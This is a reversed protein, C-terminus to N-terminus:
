LKDINYIIRIISNGKMSNKLKHIPHFIDIIDLLLIFLMPITILVFYIILITGVFKLFTMTITVYNIVNLNLSISYAITIISSIIFAILKYSNNLVRTELLWRYPDKNGSM